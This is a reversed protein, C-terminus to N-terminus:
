DKIRDIKEKIKNLKFLIAIKILTEKFKYGIITYFVFSIYEIIFISIKMENKSINFISDLINWSLFFIIGIAFILDIIKKTKILDQKNIISKINRDEEEFIQRFMFGLFDLMKNLSNDILKKFFKYGAYVLAITAGNVIALTIATYLENKPLAIIYIIGIIFIILFLIFFRISIRLIEKSQDLKIGRNNNLNLIISILTLFNM